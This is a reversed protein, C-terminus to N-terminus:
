LGISYIGKYTEKDRHRDTQRDCTPTRNGFFNDCDVRGTALQTTDPPTFPSNLQCEVVGVGVCVGVRIGVGVRGVRRYM